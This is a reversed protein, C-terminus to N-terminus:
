SPNGSSRVRSVVPPSGTSGCSRSRPLPTTPAPWYERKSRRPSPGCHWSAAFTPAKAALGAVLQRGSEDPGIASIFSVRCGLDLLNNAANAAGGPLRLTEGYELVLVPAERSVRAIQGYLFEDAILDGAVLIRRDKFRNLIALLRTGTHTMSKSSAFAHTFGAQEGEPYTRDSRLRSQVSRHFCTNSRM